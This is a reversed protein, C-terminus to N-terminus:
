IRELSIKHDKYFDYTIKMGEELTTKPEWGIEKKIKSIDAVLYDPDGRREGADIIETRKNCTKFVSELIELMSNGKGSGINYQLCGKKGLVALHAEAVDKVFIYDRIQKGEWNLIIPKNTLVAKFWKPVARTVPTQDDRPGYVNYYRLAVSNINFCNYYVNLLEEDILKSAGYPNIPNKKTDEKIPKNESPNGYVAASSSFVLSEINNQRMAELLNITNNINNKLTKEPNKMSFEIVSEAALHIVANHEKLANKIAEKDTLSAKVFRARKDVYEEYGTSLDDFVTVEYGKDCLLETVHSGIFGAGGTVLVKM